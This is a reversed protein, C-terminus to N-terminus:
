PVLPVWCHPASPTGKSISRNTRSQTLWMQSARTGRMTRSAPTLAFTRGISHLPAKIASKQFQRERGNSAFSLTRRDFRAVACRAGFHHRHNVTLTVVRLFQTVQHMPGSHFPVSVALPSPGRHIRRARFSFAPENSLLISVRSSHALNVLKL